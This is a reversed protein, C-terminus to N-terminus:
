KVTPLFGRSIESLNTNTSTFVKVLYKLSKKLKMKADCTYIDISAFEYEPWTHISLHSEAILIIGSVGHPAFHHFLPEKIIHGKALKLAKLMIQKLEEENDLLEFPCGQLDLIFHRGLTKM